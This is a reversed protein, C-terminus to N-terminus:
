FDLNIANYFKNGDGIYDLILTKESYSFIKESDYEVNKCLLIKKEELNYKSIFFINNDCVIYQHETGDEFKLILCDKSDVNSKAYVLNKNNTDKTIYALLKGHEEGAQQKITIESLNRNFYRTFMMMLTVVTTLGIVYIILSILTVGKNSKM